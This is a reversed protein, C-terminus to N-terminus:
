LWSFLDSFWGKKKPVIMPTEGTTPPEGLASNQRLRQSEKQADVQTEATNPKRWYLLRDLFGTDADKAAEHDVEARINSPAPGVQQLLAEQGPSMTGQPANLALQPVLAEAAQQRDSQDQPRPAGPRPPRLTYDPPLSLPAQTTVTFEDPAARTLGFTRTMKEDCGALLVLSGLALLPVARGFGHPGSRHLGHASRPRASGAATRRTRILVPEM